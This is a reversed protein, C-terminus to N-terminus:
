NMMNDVQMIPVLTMIWFAHRSGNLEWEGILEWIQRGRNSMFGTMSLEKMNADILPYGTRGDRWSEFLLQDQSWRTKVKRPGGIHFLSNGYKISLFRFYDRWILEFLVRFGHNYHGFEPVVM